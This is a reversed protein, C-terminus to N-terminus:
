GILLVVREELPNKQIKPRHKEINESFDDINKSAKIGYAISLTSLREKQKRHKSVKEGDTEWIAFHYEKYGSISIGAKHLVM